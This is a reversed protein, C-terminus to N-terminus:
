RLNRPFHPQAGTLLLPHLRAQIHGNPLLTAVLLAGSGRGTPSFVFNGLSYCIPKGRYWEMPQVVHPHHGIVMDAGGEIAAHALAKQRPSPNPANEIGCHLSVILVDVRHRAAAVEQRIGEASGMALSPATESEPLLPPVLGLYALFGIRKGKCNLIRLAHAEARNAGAGVTQVGVGRVRKVTEELAARGYDWAHNNALSVIRFGAESLAQATEPRAQFNFQKPIPKGQTAICCELNGFAIDARRLLPKLAAFPYDRGKREMVQGMPGAMLIDGVALLRIPQPKSLPVPKRVRTLLPAPKAAVPVARRQRALLGLGSVTLIAITTILLVTRLRM